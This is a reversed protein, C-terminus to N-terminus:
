KVNQRGLQNINRLIIFIDTEIQYNKAYSINLNLKITESLNQKQKVADIPSLVSNKITPLQNKFNKMPYFGVWSKKGILVQFINKIFGLKEKVFFFLVPYFILFTFAFTKDILNKMRRNHPKTISNFDLTYLSGQTNISNSGIISISDQPAIKVNVNMQSLRLMMSIIHETAINKACFIVENIKFIKIIEDIQNIKGLYNEVNESSEDPKIFGVIDTNTSVQEIINKVRLAEAKEGIIIIKRRRKSYISLGSFKNLSHLILRVITMILFSYGAGFLILARSFRYKVDILAYFILIITTGAFIGNFVNKIRVPNDYAGSYYSSVLWIFIYIPLMIWIFDPYDKATHLPIKEWIPVFFLFGGFILSADLIPLYIAKVIRRMISLGARFFIALKILFMFIKANKQAFHKQAFIIMANYFVFVYNLSGKKTSEGKYHVITTDAFYYNKYGAQLIRYSLDIDEGYMFFTEDLLGIKDLVTKRLLMFAGSLIEVEHTHEKDLHGLYYKAFKKSKPFLKTLGSMKYFAVEPTPIGRKSEPLFNGKGDIMKVGLGGAEPHADMFEVVKSFTSEEVITDPNLLLIYEGNAKRIAQNNARSFGLNEKNAILRVAPFEKKVMEVSGDVSNNDVVWVEGVVKELSKFVSTLCQQLFYKVNYNVIIVSLKM